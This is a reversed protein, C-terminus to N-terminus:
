LLIQARIGSQTSTRPYLMTTSCDTSSCWVPTICNQKWSPSLKATRKTELSEGTKLQDAGHLHNPKVTLRIQKIHYSELFPAWSRQRDSNAPSYLVLHFTHNIRFTTTAASPVGGELVFVYYHLCFYLYLYLNGM